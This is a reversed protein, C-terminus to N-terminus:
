GSATSTAEVTPTATPPVTRAPLAFIVVLAVIAIILVIIAVIMPTRSQQNLGNTM